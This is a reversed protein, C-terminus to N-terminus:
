LTEELLVMCNSCSSQDVIKKINLKTINDRNTEHDNKRPSLRAKELEAIEAEGGLLRKSNSILNKDYKLYIQQIKDLWCM